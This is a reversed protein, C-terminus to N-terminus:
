SQRRVISARGIAECAEQVSLGFRKQLQPLIPRAKATPTLLWEVAEAISENTSPTPM